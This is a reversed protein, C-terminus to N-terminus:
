AGGENIPRVIIKGKVAGRPLNEEIVRGLARQYNQLHFNVVREIYKGGVNGEETGPQSASRPGLNFPGFPTLQEHMKLAYPTDARITVEIGTSIRKTRHTISKRLRGTDIPANLKSRKAAHKGIADMAAEVILVLQAQGLEANTVIRLGMGTEKVEVDFRDAM